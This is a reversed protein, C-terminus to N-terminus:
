NIGRRAKTNDSDSDKNEYRIRRQKDPTILYVENHELIVIDWIVFNNFIVRKGDESIEFNAEEDFNTLGCEPNNEANKKWTYVPGLYASDTPNGKSFVATHLKYCDYEQYNDVGSFFHETIKWEKTKGGTLIDMPTLKVEKESCSFLTLASLIFLLGTKRM